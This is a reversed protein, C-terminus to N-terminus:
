FEKLSIITIGRLRSITSMVTRVCEGLDDMVARNTFRLVLWGDGELLAQKKADRARLKLATHGTGDVEIAIKQSPHAIDIKYHRPYGEAPTLGTRYVWETKWGLADALRQQPVSLPKGNGGQIRPKHGIDRLALAVKERVETRKMPNNAKMRASAYKRNTQSMRESSRRSHARHSCEKSCYARPRESKWSDKTGSLVTFANGCEACSLAHSVQRWKKSFVGSRKKEAFGSSRCATSCYRRPVGDAPIYTPGGCYQCNRSKM